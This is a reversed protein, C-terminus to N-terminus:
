VDYWQRMAMLRNFYSHNKPLLLHVVQDAWYDFMYTINGPMHQILFRSVNGIFVVTLKPNINKNM